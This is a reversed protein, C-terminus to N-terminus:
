RTAFITQRATRRETHTSITSASPNGELIGRVDTDIDEALSRAYVEDESTSILINIGAIKLLIKSDNM